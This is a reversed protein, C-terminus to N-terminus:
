EEDVSDDVAPTEQMFQQWRAREAPDAKIRDEIALSERYEAAEAAITWNAELGRDEVLKRIQSLDVRFFEKRPNVKNMQALSLEHHLATELAPADASEIFAHVDFPFPVSADGLEKVRDLPELRRTM